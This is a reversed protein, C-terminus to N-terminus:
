SLGYMTHHCSSASAARMRADPSTSIVLAEAGAIAATSGRGLVAVEAHLPRGAEVLHLAPRDQLAARVQPVAVCNRYKAPVGAISARSTPRDPSPPRALPALSPSGAPAPASRASRRRGVEAGRHPDVGAEPVVVEGLQALPELAPQRMSTPRGAQRDLLAVPAHHQREGAPQLRGRDTASHRRAMRAASCARPWCSTNSRARHREAVDAAGGEQGRDLRRVAVRRLQDPRLFAHRRQQLARAGRRARRHAALGSGRSVRVPRRRPPM